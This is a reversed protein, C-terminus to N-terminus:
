PAVSSSLDLEPSGQRSRMEFRDPYFTVLITEREGQVTSWAAVYGPSTEFLGASRLYQVEEANFLSRLPATYVEFVGNILSHRVDRYLLGLKLSIDGSNM